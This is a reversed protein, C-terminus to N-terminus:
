LIDIIIACFVAVLLVSYIVALKIPKKRRMTLCGKRRTKLFRFRFRLTDKKGDALRMNKGATLYSLAIFHNFQVKWIGENSIRNLREIAKEIADTTEVKM